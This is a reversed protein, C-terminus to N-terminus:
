RHLELWFLGTELKHLTNTLSMAGAGSVRTGQLGLAVLNTLGELHHMGEDSVGTSNLMLTNLKSFQGLHSLAADNVKTNNLALAELGNFKKFHSLGDGTVRTHSLMLRRLNVMDQLHVLGADTVQSRGLMIQQLNTMGTLHALGKDGVRTAGLDLAPLMEAGLALGRMKTLHTLHAMGDDTVLTGSLALVELNTLGSLHALGSDSISTSYLWLSRLKTLGRLAELGAGEIWPNAGFNLYTLNTLGALHALGKDTIEANFVSIREMKPFTALHALTTDTIGKLGRPVASMFSFTQLNTLGILNEVGKDTVQSYNLDIVQLRPFKRLLSMGEDTVQSLPGWIAIQELNTLGQLEALGADGIKPGLGLKTISTLDKLLVMDADQAEELSVKIIQTRNEDFKVSGGLKKIAAVVEEYEKPVSDSSNKPTDSSSASAAANKSDSAQETQADTLAVLSLGAILFLALVSWRQMKKFKAIMMIRRQMQRKDELIGIVGPLRNSHEFDELLKVITQGYGNWEREESHSLALEDCALERDASIREMARWIVPNFWHLVQLCSMLWNVQMDWRKLHALEHLFVHRLEKSNLSELLGSPLLLRCRWFGYLAPGKVATTELVVPGRIGMEEACELLVSEVAPDQIETHRRLRSWFKFNQWIIRSGLLVAGTLWFWFLRKMLQAVTFGHVQSPENVLPVLVAESSSPAATGGTAALPPYTKSNGIGIEGRFSQDMVFPLREKATDYAANTVNFVSVKSSPADPLVLRILVLFWLAHRWGATLQKRFIWQTLVVLGALISAQWSNRLVWEFLSQTVENM